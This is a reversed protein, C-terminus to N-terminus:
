LCGMLQPNPHVVGEYLYFESKAVVLYLQEAVAFIQSLCSLFYRIKGILACIKTWCFLLSQSNMGTIRFNFNWINVLGLRKKVVFKYLCINNM